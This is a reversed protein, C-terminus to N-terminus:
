DCVRPIVTSGNPILYILKDKLDVESLLQDMSGFARIGMPALQEPPVSTMMLIHYRAAQECNLFFIYGPITFHERLKEVMTGEVLPHIWDFYEAPGGGERCEMLLVLTGGPKLAFEINDITKTGQYLSMDKPYGGSSAIIVDAKERIPVRYIEDVMECARLWSTLYHGSFIAALKMQANMVLTVTFLDKVMAAAECMDLHLPNGELVANGIEPNTRPLVPDLAHAHNQQVTRLSSVGPLISKRGGGFGAMVHHTAAGLTVVKRGVVLPNLIVETGYSTTGVSVLDPAMCDHNVVRVKDFVADTVLRRLEAEDGGIHTGNAVLIVLNQCPIGCEDRIYDVLHPIVLDQRMWFRSLDSIVLTVLDGPHLFERLPEKDIPADLSDFLAQRIDELPPTDKGHLEQVRADDPLAFSVSGDGYRFSYNKM